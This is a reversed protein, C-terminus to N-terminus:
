LDLERIIDLIYEKAERKKLIDLPSTEGRAKQIRATISEEIRDIIECKMGVIRTGNPEQSVCEDLCKMIKNNVIKDDSVANSIGIAVLNLGAEVDINREEMYKIFNLIMLSVFKDPFDEYKEKDTYNRGEFLDKM